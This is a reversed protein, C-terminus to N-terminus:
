EIETRLSELLRHGEDWERLGSAANIHGAKGISVLRSGWDEACQRAFALDGYPDDISAVV